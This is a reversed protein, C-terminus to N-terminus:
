SIFEYNHSETRVKGREEILIKRTNLPSAVSILLFDFCVFEVLISGQVQASVLHAAGAETTTLRLLVQSM